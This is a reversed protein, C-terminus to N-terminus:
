APKGEMYCGNFCAMCPNMHNLNTQVVAQRLDEETQYLLADVGLFVKIADISQHSAILEEHTPM